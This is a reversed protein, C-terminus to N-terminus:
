CRGRVISSQQLLGHLPHDVCAEPASRFSHVKTPISGPADRFLMHKAQKPKHAHCGDCMIALLLDQHQCGKRRRSICRIVTWVCMHPKNIPVTTCCAPPECNKNSSADQQLIAHIDPSKARFLYAREDRPALSDPGRNDSFYTHAPPQSQQTIGVDFSGSSYALAVVPYAQSHVRSILKYVCESPM